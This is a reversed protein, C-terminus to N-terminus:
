EAGRIGVERMERSVGSVVAIRRRDQRCYAKSGPKRVM